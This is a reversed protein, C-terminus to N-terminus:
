GLRLVSNKANFCRKFRWLEGCYFLFFLIFNRKILGLVKNAKNSIKDIHSNWSLKHNTLLGLDSTLVTGKRIGM